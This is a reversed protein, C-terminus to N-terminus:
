GSRAAVGRAVTFVMSQLQLESGREIPGPNQGDTPYFLGGRLVVDPTASFAADRQEIVGFGNLTAAVFAYVGVLLVFRAAGFEDVDDAALDDPKSNSVLAPIRALPMGTREAAAVHVYSEYAARHHGGVVLVVVEKM